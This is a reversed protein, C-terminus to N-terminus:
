AAPDAVGVKSKRFTAGTAPAVTENLLVNGMGEVCLLISRPTACVSSGWGAVVDTVACHAHVPTAPPDCVGHTVSGETSVSSCCILAVSVSIWRCAAGNAYTYPALWAPRVPCPEKATEPRIPTDTSIVVIGDRAPRISPEGISYKSRPKIVRPVASPYSVDLCRSWSPVSM